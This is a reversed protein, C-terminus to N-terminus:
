LDWSVESVGIAALTVTSAGGSVVAILQGDAFVQADDGDTEVTVDPATGGIPYAVTIIDEAADFDTITAEEGDNIWSVVNFDDAGEGGTGTDGNGLYLTDDGAGGDMTDGTDSDSYTNEITPIDAPQLSGYTIGLAEDFSLDDAFAEVGVLTDNGDAGKLIDEGDGGILTDDGENGYLEDNGDGGTIFDDGRWGSLVDNDAEGMLLDNDPGGILRDDGDGGRIDDEGTGGYIDDDGQGGQITDWHDGGYIEDNGTGGNIDDNGEGGSILDDGAQGFLDDNGDFGYIEENADTGIFVDNAPTGSFALEREVPEVPEDGPVDTPSAGGGDAPEADGDSSDDNIADVILFGSFIGLISLLALM